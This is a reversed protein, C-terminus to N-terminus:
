KSLKKELERQGDGYGEQYVEFSFQEILEKLQGLKDKPVLGALQGYFRAKTKESVV